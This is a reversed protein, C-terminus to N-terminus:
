LSLCYLPFVSVSVMLMCLRAFFSLFAIDCVVHSSSRGCDNLASRPTLWPATRLGVVRRANKSIRSTASDDGSTFISLMSSGPSGSLTISGCLMAYISSRIVGYAVSSDSCLFAFIIDANQMINPTSM